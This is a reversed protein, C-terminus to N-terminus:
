NKAASPAKQRNLYAALRDNQLETEADNDEAEHQFDKVVKAATSLAAKYVSESEPTDLDTLLTNVLKKKLDKIDSM